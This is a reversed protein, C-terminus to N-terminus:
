GRFCYDIDGSMSNLVLSKEAIKKDAMDKCEIHYDEELGDISVNIDGSKSSFNLHNSEGIFEIDGSVTKNNYADNRVGESNINGSVTQCNINNALINNLKVDGSVTNIFIDNSEINSIKADGSVTKLKLENSNFYGENNIDGSVTIIHAQDLKYSTPIYINVESEKSNNIRFSFISDKKIEKIYLHDSDNNLEFKTKDYEVKIQNRECNKINVNASLTEVKITKSDDEDIKIKKDGIISYAVDKVSGLSEIVEQESQGNEISDLILEKFYEITEDIDDCNNLELIERLEKLFNEM